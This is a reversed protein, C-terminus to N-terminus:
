SLDAPQTTAEVLLQISTGRGAMALVSDVTPARYDNREAVWSALPDFLVPQAGSFCVAVAHRWFASVGYVAYATGLVLLGARGGGSSYRDIRRRFAADDTNLNKWGLAAALGLGTPTILSFAPAYAEVAAGQSRLARAAATVTKVDRVADSGCGICHAINASSSQVCRSLTWADNQNQPM